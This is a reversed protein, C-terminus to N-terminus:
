TPRRKFRRFAGEIRDDAEATADRLQDAAQSVVDRSEEVVLTRLQPDKMLDEVVVPLVEERLYPLLADILDPMGRRQVWGMGDRVLTMADARGAEVVARGQRRAGEMVEGVRARAPALPWVAFLTRDAREAWPRIRSAAMSAVGVCTDVARGTRGGMREAVLVAL